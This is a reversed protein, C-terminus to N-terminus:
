IVFVNAYKCESSCDFGLAQQVLLLAWSLLDFVFLCRLRPSTTSEFKKAYLVQLPAGIYKCVLTEVSYRSTELQLGGVVCKGCLAHGTAASPNTDANTDGPAAVSPTVGIKERPFFQRVKKTMARQFTIFKKQFTIVKNLRRRRVV